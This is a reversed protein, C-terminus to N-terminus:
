LIVLGFIRTLLTSGLYVSLSLLAVLELPRWMTMMPRGQYRSSILNLYLAALTDARMQEIDQRKEEVTNGKPSMCGTVLGILLLGAFAARALRIMIRMGYGALPADRVPDDDRAVNWVDGEAHELAPRYRRKYGYASM